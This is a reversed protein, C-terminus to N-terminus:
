RRQQRSRKGLLRAKAKARPEMLLKHPKPRGKRARPEVRGPRDGVIEKRVLQLLECASSVYAAGTQETQRQWGALLAQKTAKFSLARPSVEGQEAAQAAVKRVLNYALVHAWIEKEIMAPTRCRLQDMGLTVKLSRIDLEVHWRKHYLEGVASATYEEAQLLTTAVILEKVRCGPEQVQVRIERMQLTEPIAAYSEEDLWEPRAPKHWSVVHDNRGLRRGRRFDYKRRQHLRFVVDVGSARLLAVLFYSCYYRDAVVIDGARLLGFLQRFLATEGTEKGQYPGYALGQVAATALSVLLVWRLIPFGVGPKQRAPQPFAQQNEPTDPLRSTSGDVLHVRRGQWLWSDPAADELQQAVHITLKQLVKAPIKARARCYAATDLEEPKQTLAFALIARAVAQRCSKDPDLTQWLFTWLTLAPTWFARPATGFSLNEDALIQELDHTQLVQPFPLDEQLFPAFTQLLKFDHTTTPSFPM